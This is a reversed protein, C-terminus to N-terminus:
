EVTVSKALNRPQDVDTGKALATHYALLQAAVSYAFPAALDNCPALQLDASGGGGVMFVRAGRAAVEAANALTKEQLPGRSAFVVVPVESDILAIPGHKLEGAAYGEAHIYSVEKLKLAAELALPYTIGRGLFIVDRACSIEEAIQKIRPELAIAARVARAIDGAHEVLRSVESPAIHGRAAGAKIAIMLLALMQATFAKTSAVGIEPGAAIDLVHDAERALSSTSVNVVALRAFVKGAVDKLAALTDATEGSQSVAIVLEGPAHVRDRYRYESAIDIRVDVGALSEFWYQAVHCAYHATGCAVLSVREIKSFDLDALFDRLVGNEVDVLNGLLGALCHPQDHIEKLMFHAYPGKEASAQSAPVTVIERAVEEGKANTIMVRERTIVARDGDELYAIQDTFPALALADSGVFMEALGNEDAPGYGIALPSGKRAVFLRDGYGKILVALAYSGTLLELLRAFAKEPAASQSLLRELVHAAVETDTDSYFRVGEAALEAKLEAYNEIIGNHVLTVNTTFHPHANDITAPGHTAWRTHGLGAIGPVPAEALMQRLADLKGVSRRIHVRGRRDLLAIGASDYGRYELRALGEVLRDAADSRGLIAVIGCM